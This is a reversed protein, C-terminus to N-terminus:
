YIPNLSFLELEEAYKKIRHIHVTRPHLRSDTTKFIKLETNFIGEEKAKNPGCLRRIEGNDEISYDSFYSESSFFEGVVRFVGVTKVTAAVLDLTNVRYCKIDKRSFFLGKLTSIVVRISTHRGPGAVCYLCDIEELTKDTTKLMFDVTDVLLQSHTKGPKSYMLFIPKGGEFLCLDIFTGSGDIAFEIM